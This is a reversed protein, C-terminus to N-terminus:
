PGVKEVFYCKVREDFDITVEFRQGDAWTLAFLPPEGSLREITDPYGGPLVPRVIAAECWDRAASLILGDDHFPDFKRATVPFPGFKRATM